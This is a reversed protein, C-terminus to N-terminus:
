WTDKPCRKDYCVNSKMIDKEINCVSCKNYVEESTIDDLTGGDYVINGVSIDDTGFDTYEPYEPYSLEFDGEFEECGKSYDVFELSGQMYSFGSARIFTEFQPLINHINNAEFEVTVKSNDYKEECILTYKAM